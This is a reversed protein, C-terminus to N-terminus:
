DIFYKLIQKEVEDLRNLLKFHRDSGGQCIKIKKHLLIAEKCLMYTLRDNAFLHEKEEFHQLVISQINM